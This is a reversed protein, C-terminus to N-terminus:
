WNFPIQLQQISINEFQGINVWNVTQLLLIYKIVAEYAYLINWLIQNIYQVICTQQKRLLIEHENCQNYSYNGPICIMNSECLGYLKYILCLRDMGPFLIKRHDYTLVQERPYLNLGYKFVPNYQTVTSWCLITLVLAVTSVLCSDIPYIVCSWIGCAIDMKTLSNAIILNFSDAANADNLMLYIM